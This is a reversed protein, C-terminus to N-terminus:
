DLIKNKQKQSFNKIEKVSLIIQVLLAGNFFVGFACLLYFMGSFHFIELVFAIILLFDRTDTMGLYFRGKSFQKKRQDKLLYKKTDTIYGSLVNSYLSALMLIIVVFFSHKGTDLVFFGVASFYFFEKIRDTFSDLWAGFDSGTQTLRAVEGDSADLVGALFVLFAGLILYFPTNLHLFLIFAAGLGAILSALTLVNASIGLFIAFRTTFCSLRRATYYGVIGDVPKTKHM